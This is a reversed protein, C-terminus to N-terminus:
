FINKVSKKIIKEFYKKLKAKKKKKNFINIAGDFMIMQMM